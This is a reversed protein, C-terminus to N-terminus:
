LKMKFGFFNKIRYTWSPSASSQTGITPTLWTSSEVNRSSSSFPWLSNNKPQYVYALVKYGLKKETKQLAFKDGRISGKSFGSPGSSSPHNHIIYNVVEKNSIASEIIGMTNVNERWM